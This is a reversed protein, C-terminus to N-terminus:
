HVRMSIYKTSCNFYRMVAYHVARNGYSDERELSSGHAILLKVANVDGNQLHLQVETEDISIRLM